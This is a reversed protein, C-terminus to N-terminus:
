GTSDLPLPALKLDPRMNSPNIEYWVVHTLDIHIDMPRRELESTRPVMVFYTIQSWAVYILFKLQCTMSNTQDVMQLSQGSNTSPGHSDLDM